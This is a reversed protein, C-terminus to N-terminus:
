EASKLLALASEETTDNTGLEGRFAKELISKKISDIQEVVAKAKDVAEEMRSFLSEIQSVIRKQESLPPLPVIVKELALGTLHKITSGTFFRAIIGNDSYYKFLHCFFFPNAKGLFRIRHIAKQFHFPKDSTWVACRGPEGGECMVLDNKEILFRSDKTNVFRMELLNSLDFSGWRVNVNRLYQCLTGVNKQKDLMKGLCMQAIHPLRMWKWGEPIEFPIEDEKIEPLAKEKKIKGEKVLRQKEKQIERFLEEGTGEEPRQEVLRGTFAKHLIASKWLEFGDIVERAKARAEDLRSFLSEILSVIQTQEKLPPLPFLFLLVNKREIGPIMSKALVRLSDIQRIIFYKLYLPNTTIPRIAMIQRAIHAREEQLFAIKGVTGKCTLLLDGKNAISKPKEIWRNISINGVEDINSAGTIYPIGKKDSNYASPEMDQGSQLSIIEGLRVWIWREPIEFPIEDEKIGPLPKEKKIKGDKVLRQKEEQIKRYLKEAPYTEPHEEFDFLTKQGKKAEGM